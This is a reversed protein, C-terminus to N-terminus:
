NNIKLEDVSMLVAGYAADNKMSVVEVFPYNRNM